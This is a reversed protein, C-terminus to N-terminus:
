VTSKGTPKAEVNTKKGKLIQNLSELAGNKWLYKNNNGCYPSYTCKPCGDERGCKCTALMEAGREFDREMRDYLLRTLGSGGFAGDYIVISGDPYSIGGMEAQDAGTLTVAASILIHEAAHSASGRQTPTWSMRLPLNFNIIKTPFDFIITEELDNEAVTRQTTKDKQYYGDVIHRITGAGYAIEAKFASRKLEPEFEQMDSHYRAVTFYKSRYPLQEVIARRPNFDMVRYQTGGHLYIAEPHLERAAMPLGRDGIYKNEMTYIRIDEGTGRLKTAQHLAAGSRTTTLANRRTRELYGEKLLNSIVKDSSKIERNLKEEEIRSFPQDYVMSVIQRKMVEPNKPDLYAPESTSKYFEDPHTAYYNSIPDDGIILFVGSEKGRRGARGVKQIYRSFTPPIKMLVVSDLDGIDIGQELTPTAV